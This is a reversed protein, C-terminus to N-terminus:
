SRKDAVIRAREEPSVDLKDLIFNVLGENAKVKDGMEAIKEGHNIISESVEIMRLILSENQATLKDIKKEM